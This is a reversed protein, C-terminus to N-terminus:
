IGRDVAVGKGATAENIETAQKRLNHKNPNVSVRACKNGGGCKYAGDRVEQKM